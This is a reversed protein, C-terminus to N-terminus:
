SSRPSCWTETREARALAASAGLGAALLRRRVLVRVAYAPLLLANSPPEGYRALRLAQDRAVVV